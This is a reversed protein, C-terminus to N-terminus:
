EITIEEKWTMKTRPFFEGFGMDSLRVQLKNGSLMEMEIHIRTTKEPREPLGTLSIVVRKGEKEASLPMLCVVVEPEKELLVDCEAKAEYWNIGADLLPHYGGAGQKTVELGINAKVKDDGLFVYQKDLEGPDIKERVAYCAGKSYLNNGQFVRRNLCLFRLSEQMWEGKFGDGLLYVTSVIRGACVEKVMGTFWLDLEETTGPRRDNEKKDIFVVMPSTKKNCELRYTILKDADMESVLVQYNWLEKPQNLIYYYCSEIHSQFFINKCKLHLGEVVQELVSLTRHDLEETTVMIADALDVSVELSLISLSRKVFLTLLAVPDFTEGEIYVPNGERALQLLGEVLEGDGNEAQRYADRGFFWQNVDKRKCLVTPINFLETGVVVAATEPATGSSISYSIQSFGNGLDYGIVLGKNKKGPIRKELIM